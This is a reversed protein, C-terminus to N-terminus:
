GSQVTVRCSAILENVIRALEEPVCPKELLASFGAARADSVRVAQGTLALVPIGATRTDARIQSVAEWGSMTPLTLDMVIADPMHSRAREVAEGGDSAEITRHGSMELFEVYMERNDQSDDVVLVLAAASEPRPNPRPESPLPSPNNHEDGM